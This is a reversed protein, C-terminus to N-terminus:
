EGSAEFYRKQYESPTMGNVKRFARIFSVANTYGLEEYIAQITKNQYHEKDTLRKAAERIRRENLQTKFNKGYTDNIIWSVYKTNSHIEDALKQLSFEPDSIQNIDDMVAIIRKLLLNTQEQSLGPSTTASGHGEKKETKVEQEPVSQLLKKSNQEMLELEKDKSIILRQAQKLRSYKRKLVILLVALLTLFLTIVAILITQMSIKGNLKSVEKSHKRQEYLTLRSKASNFNKINYVSNYVKYYKYLYTEAEEKEGLGLCAEYMMKYANALLEDSNLSDSQAICLEAQRRAKAYEGQKVYLNGIESNQYLAYVPSMKQKLAYDLTREHQRIAEGLRGEATLIRAANYMLFYHGNVPDAKDPNAELLKFYRKAEKAKGQRCYSTVINTLFKSKLNELGHAKAMEYGKLLYAIGSEYDSFVDYINAIYGTSVCYTHYDKEAEAKEMANIFLTLAKPYQEDQYCALAEQALLEAGTPAKDIALCLASCFCCLLLVATRLTHKM